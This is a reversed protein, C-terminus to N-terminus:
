HHGAPHVGHHLAKSLATTSQQPVAAAAACIVATATATTPLRQSLLSPLVQSLGPRICLCM